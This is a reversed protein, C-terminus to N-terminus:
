QSDVCAVPPTNKLIQLSQVEGSESCCNAVVLMECLRKRKLAMGISLLMSTKTSETGCKSQNKSALLLSTTKEDEGGEEPLSTRM